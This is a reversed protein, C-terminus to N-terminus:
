IGATIEAKGTFTGTFVPSLVSFFQISYHFFNGVAPLVGFATTYSDAIDYLSNSVLATEIWRLGLPNFARNEHRPSTMKFIFFYLDDYIVDSFHLRFEFEEPYQINLFDYHAPMPIYTIDTLLALGVMLRLLQYKIYLKHGSLLVSKDKRITQGSFNIFRDWQLREADTLAQWAAQITIM